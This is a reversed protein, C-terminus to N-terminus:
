GNDIASTASRTHYPLRIEAIAGGGEAARLEFTQSAGYLERLRNRTNALGVGDPSVSPAPGTNSVSLVLDNGARHARVEVRATGEDVSGTGHKFANEVLPQLALNPVLADRVDDDIVISTELRGQFRVEMIDMYRELLDAERELTIEQEPTEELNHRLLDSLRAIMKRVGRPDREVLAGVANLTNFLFHPNLQSRLADLRAGALQAQLGAAEASLERTEDLRAQYRRYYDRAIAAGLVALYIMFDDLFEFRVINDFPGPQFRRGPPRPLWHARAMRLATDVAIAIVLGLLLLLVIRRVRHAEAASARDALWFIPVTLLAWVGYEVFALRILASTVEPRIEFLRPDLLRGAATLLALFLWALAIVLLETPKLGLGSNSSEHGRETM